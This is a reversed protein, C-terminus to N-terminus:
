SLAATTTAIEKSDRRFLRSQQIVAGSDSM